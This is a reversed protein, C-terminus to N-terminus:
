PAAPQPASTGALAAVRRNKLREYTDFDLDLAGALERITSLEAREAVGDAAMVDLCLGIAEYKMPLDAIANIRATTDELSLRGESAQALAESLAEGCAKEMLRRRRGGLSAFQRGLWREVVATEGEAMGGDAMGVAVALRVTLPLVQDREEASDEYGQGPFTHVLGAACARLVAPDSQRARGLEIHPASTADYLRAVVSLERKGRRPPVVLASAVTCLAFWDAHVAGPVLMAEDRFQFATTGPEQFAKAVAHVPKDMPTESVDLMSVAVGLRGAGVTPLVGRGEIVIADHGDAGQMARARVEFPAARAPGPVVAMAQRRSRVRWLALAAVGAAALAAVLWIEM